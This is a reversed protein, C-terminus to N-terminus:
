HRHNLRRKPIAGLCDGNANTQRNDDVRKSSSSGKPKPYFVEGGRLYRDPTNWESNSDIGDDYNGRGLVHGPDVNDDDNVRKKLVKSGDPLDVIKLKPLPIQRNTERRQEAAKLVNQRQTTQLKSENRSILAAKNANSNSTPKGAPIRTQRRGFDNCRAQHIELIELPVIVGCLSCPVQVPLRRYVSKAVLKHSDNTELNSFKCSVEHLKIASVPFLNGCNGCLVKEKDHEDDENCNAVIPHCIHDRRQFSTMRANCRDCYEFTTSCIFQHEEINDISQIAQCFECPLGVADEAVDFSDMKKTVNTNEGVPLANAGAPRRETPHEGRSQFIKQCVVNRYKVASTPTKNEEEIPEKQNFRDCQLNTHDKMLRILIFRGCKDCSETRSGCYLEHEELNSVLCDIECYECPLTRRPCENEIHNALFSTEVTNKCVTCLTLYPVPAERAEADPVPEQSKQGNVIFRACHLSHLVHIGSPVDRNCHQCNTMSQESDM